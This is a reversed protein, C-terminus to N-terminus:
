STLPNIVAIGATQAVEALIADASVVADILKREYLEEAVALHLADLTRLGHSPGYNLLLLRARSFHIDTIAVVNLRGALDLYLSKRAEQCEDSNLARTRLKNSLASEMEVVALRSIILHNDARQFIGDVFETGRESHYM